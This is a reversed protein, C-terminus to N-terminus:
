LNKTLKMLRQYLKKKLFMLQLNSFYMMLFNSSAILLKLYYKMMKVFKSDSNKELYANEKGCLAPTLEPRQAMFEVLEEVLSRDLQEYSLDKGDDVLYMGNEAVFSMDKWYETFDLRTREFQNGSAVIFHIDREKMKNLLESFLKKDYSKDDRLFTGDMDIAVAKFPIM